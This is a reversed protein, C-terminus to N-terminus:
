NILVIPVSVTTDSVWQCQTECGKQKCKNSAGCSDFPKRDIWLPLWEFENRASDEVIGRASPDAVKTLSKQKLRLGLGLIANPLGSM